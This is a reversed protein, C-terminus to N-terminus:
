KLPVYKSSGCPKWGDKFSDRCDKCLPRLIGIGGIDVLKVNHTDECMYCKLDPM